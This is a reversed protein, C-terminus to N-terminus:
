LREFIIATGIGGASPISALGFGGNMVLEHFLRVALITGSAGIPHGRALSGGGVNVREPDLDLEKICALVQASFAEMIEFYIISDKSLGEMALVERVAPVTALGPMMPDSGITLGSGIRVKPRGLVNAIKESVVLVFAAGDAAVSTNAATITGYIPPSKRCTEITLKRTFQDGRPIGDMFIIEGDLREQGDRAKQHSHVAWRDQEDRTLGFGHALDNAAKVMVPDKNAWPTFPAQDIPDKEFKGNKRLFTKPRLSYSEVGGALVVEAAQSAILSKALLIADLGSACQRDITLGPVTEPLGLQLSIVRGPNGGPGLVNGVILEDVKSPAIGAKVLCASATAEGMTYINVNGLKGNRPAVPTRAGAIIYSETVM